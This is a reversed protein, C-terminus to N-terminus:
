PSIEGLSYWDIPIPESLGESCFVSVALRSQRGCCCRVRVAAEPRPQGAAISRLRSSSKCTEPDKHLGLHSTHLPLTHRPTNPAPLFFLPPRSPLCRHRWCGQQPQEKYFKM